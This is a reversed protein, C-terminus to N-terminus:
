GGEEGSQEGRGFEHWREAWAELQATVRGHVSDVPYAGDADPTGAEMGALIPWAEEVRDVAYVHFRGEAAADRIERPLTLHEVNRRPLVVGQEGSMGVQQCAAFFGEVKETVGGVPLVIGEQNLAGTVAIGQKLPIDGIASMLGFLEAASASDGEVEEYLQDFSLSASLILPVNRAFQQGLYGSLVLFGKNHIPGSLRAEREINVVGGTGLFASAMVRIPRGFPREGLGLLGIGYLQGVAEGFPRFDLVGRHILDLIERYPRAERRERAELAEDIARAGVADQGASVARHAAELALDKVERFRTTLKTQNGALRSGEEVVRAVAEADFPPLEHTACQTALFTAYEREADPTREMWPRFDVKVKFLDGFEADLHRLLYYLQPEGIMIVKLRAPIPDPELSDSVALGLEAAADAPSLESTRLARKLAPWALPRSLLEQAHLILYGGNARHLAGPAIRTFDTVMIGFRVQGEVHGFLNKLNPNPVEVVPTGSEPTRCVLANVAYRRFFDERGAVRLPGLPDSEDEAEAAFRTAHRVMDDAVVDLYGTVADVAGYKERLHRLRHRVLNQAVQEHLESVQERALRGIEHVERQTSQVRQSAAEVHEHITRRYEESLGSLQERDIPEGGRAPVVIQADLDGILAVFEDAELQARLEDMLESAQKGRGSLIAQRRGAVDKSRLAEPVSRQLDRVLEQMDEQLTRAQGPPVELVRPHRPEDFNFVYCWDPPTETEGVRSALTQRVFTLRGSGPPGLVFVNHGPADISLGFELAELAEAQGLAAGSPEIEATTEFDFSDPDALQHLESPALPRLAPHEPSANM